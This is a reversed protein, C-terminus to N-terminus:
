SAVAMLKLISCVKNKVNEVVSGFIHSFPGHGIINIPTRFIYSENKKYIAPRM